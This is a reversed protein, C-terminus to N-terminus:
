RKQIKMLSDKQQLSAKSDFFCALDWPTEHMDGPSHVVFAVHLGALDVDGDSGQEIKWGVLANCSGKTPSSLVICPCIADCSCSELYTGKINWSL